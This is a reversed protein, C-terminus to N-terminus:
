LDVERGMTRHNVIDAMIEEATRNDVWGGSLSLLKEKRRKRENPSTLATIEGAHRIRFVPKAPLPIPPIYVPEESVSDVASEFLSLIEGNLSRHSRAARLRLRSLMSDPINRVTLAPM